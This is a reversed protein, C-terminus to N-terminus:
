ANRGLARRVTNYSVALEDAVQRANLGAATLRAADDRCDIRARGAGNALSSPGLPRGHETDRGAAARAQWVDRIGCRAWIAVERAPIGEGYEVIRRDREPKSEYVARDGRSHHLDHLAKEADDVVQQQKARSEAAEWKALWYLHPADGYGLSPVDDGGGGGAPDWSATTGNSTLAFRLLVTRMRAELQDTAPGVPGTM